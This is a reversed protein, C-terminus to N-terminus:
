DILKYIIQSRISNLISLIKPICNMHDKNETTKIYELEPRLKITRDNEKHFKIVEKEVVEMREILNDLKSKNVKLFSEFDTSVFRTTFDRYTKRYSEKDEESEYAKISKWTAFIDVVEDQIKSLKYTDEVHKDLSLYSVFDLYNM